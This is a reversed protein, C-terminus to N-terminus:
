LQRKLEDLDVVEWRHVLLEVALRLVVVVARVLAAHHLVLDPNIVDLQSLAKECAQHGLGPVM